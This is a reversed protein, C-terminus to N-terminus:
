PKCFLCVYCCIYHCSSVSSADHNMLYLTVLFQLEKSLLTVYFVLIYPMLIFQLLSFTYYDTGVMNGKQYLDFFLQVDECRFSVNRYIILRM